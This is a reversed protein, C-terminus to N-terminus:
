VFQCFMVMMLKAGMNLKVFGTSRIEEKLNSRMHAKAEVLIIEKNLQTFTEQQFEWDKGMGLEEYKRLPLKLRGLRQYATM